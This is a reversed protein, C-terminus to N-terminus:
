EINIFIRNKGDDDDVCIFDLKNIYMNISFFRLPIFRSLILRSYVFIM